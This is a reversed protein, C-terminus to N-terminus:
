GPPQFGDPPNAPQAGGENHGEPIIRYESIVEVNNKIMQWVPCVSEEALLIAKKIDDDEIDRSNL